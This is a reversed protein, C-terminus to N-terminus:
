GSLMTGINADAKVLYWNWFRCKIETEIKSLKWEKYRFSVTNMWKWIVWLVCSWLGGLRKESEKGLLSLFCARHNDLEKPSVWQVGVWGVIKNSLTEVAKREM